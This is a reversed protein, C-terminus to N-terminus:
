DLSAVLFMHDSHEITEDFSSLFFDKTEFGKSFMYDIHYKHEKNKRWYLTPNSETGNLEFFYKHYISHFNSKNLQEELNFFTNIPLMKKDWVSSHNFDGLILGKSKSDLWEKYYNIAEILYGSKDVGFKEARHNFSWVALLNFDVFEIPLAYIYKDCYIDSIKNQIKSFVSMGKNKNLGLWHNNYKPLFDEPLLECEQLVLIDADYCAIAHYKTKFNQNCNWSIVKM